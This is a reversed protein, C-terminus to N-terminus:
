FKIKEKLKATDFALGLIIFILASGVAEIINGPITALQSGFGGYLIVAVLYYGLVTVAGSLIVALVSRVNIIKGDRKAVIYVILSNISKIILTPLFYVPYGSFLDSLGGGIGGAILGCPFPLLMSSLYILSDGVHIYGNGVPIHLMTLVCVLAAFLGTFVIIRLKLDSNKKMEIEGKQKSLKIKATKESWQM